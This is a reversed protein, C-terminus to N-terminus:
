GSGAGDRGSGDGDYRYARASSMRPHFHSQHNGGDDHARPGSYPDDRQDDSRDPFM